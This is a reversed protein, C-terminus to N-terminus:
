ANPWKELAILSNDKGKIGITRGSGIMETNLEAFSLSIKTAMVLCVALLILSNILIRQQTKLYNTCTNVM